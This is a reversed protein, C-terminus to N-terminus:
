AQSRERFFKSLHKEKHNSWPNKGVPVKFNHSTVSNKKTLRANEKKKKKALQTYTM